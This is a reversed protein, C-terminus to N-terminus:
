ILDVAMTIADLREGSPQKYYKPRHGIQTFGQARYLHEAPNGQRMELIMRAAGGARADALVDQLLRTGIGRGRCARTVAFLLLEVEDFVYRMMAFGIAPSTDGPAAGDAGILSYDCGAMMLASEVQGRTWAEGFAPDFADAMVAMIKDVDDQPPAPAAM